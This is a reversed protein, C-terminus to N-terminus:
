KKGKGKGKGKAELEEAFMLQIKMGEPITEGFDFELERKLKGYSVALWVDKVREEQLMRALTPMETLGMHKVLHMTMVKLYIVKQMDNLARNNMATMIRFRYGALRMMTNEQYPAMTQTQTEETHAPHIIDNPIGQAALCLGLLVKVHDQDAELQELCDRVYQSSMEAFPGVTFKPPM